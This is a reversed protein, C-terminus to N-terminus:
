EGDVVEARVEIQNCLVTEECKNLYEDRHEATMQEWESRPPGDFTEAYRANIAHSVSLNVRIKIPDASM